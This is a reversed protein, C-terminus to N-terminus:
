GFCLVRCFYIFECQMDNNNNPCVGLVDLPQNESLTSLTIPATAQYCVDSNTIPATAQYCVDSNTIPATAQYCVDSNTIPATAQYCVDSNTIPATAQYCVDSNTFTDTFLANYSPKFLVGVISRCLRPTCPQVIGRTLSEIVPPAPADVTGGKPFLHGAM